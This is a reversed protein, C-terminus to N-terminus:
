GSNRTISRYRSTLLDAIFFKWILSIIPIVMLSSITEPRKGTAEVYDALKKAERSNRLLDVVLVSKSDTLLYSNVNAQVGAYREISIM